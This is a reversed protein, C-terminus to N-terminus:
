EGEQHFDGVNTAPRMAPWSGRPQTGEGGGQKKALFRVVELLVKLSEGRGM